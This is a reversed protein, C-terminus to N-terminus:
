VHTILPTDGVVRVKVRRIDLPKIEVLSSKANIAM